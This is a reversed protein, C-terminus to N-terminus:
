IGNAASSKQRDAKQWTLEGNQKTQQRLDMIIGDVASKLSAVIKKAGLEKYIRSFIVAAAQFIEARAPGVNADAAMQVCSMQRVAAIAQEFEDTGVVAGDARARDYPTWGRAIHTLRLPTSSTAAFCVDGRYKELGSARVFSRAYAAIEKDLLAARDADYEKLGFKEAANRAGYPISITYLIEPRRSRTALTIETSGGGLDYVVVHGAKENQLNLMAGKLNLVAEEYGDIVELDIGAQQKIKRVFEEGNAATRCAATAIARYQGTNYEDMKMKFSCFCEVGRSVAEDTFRGTAQMGEGMRTSVATKYLTRGAADVVQQDRAPADGAGMQRLGGDPDHRGTECHPLRRSIRGRERDAVFAGGGPNVDGPQPFIQCALIHREFLRM